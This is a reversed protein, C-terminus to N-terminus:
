LEDEAYQVILDAYDQDISINIVGNEHKFELVNMPISVGRDRITKYNVQLYASRIYHGSQDFLIDQMTGIQIGKSTIVPRGVLSKLSITSDDGAATEIESLLEPYIEVIQDSPFEIKYGNSAHKIDVTGYKLFVPQTLRLRDFSVLLSDVKGETDFLVDDVEGIVKNRSDILNRSLIDEALAHRPNQLPKIRNLDNLTDKFSITQTADLAFGASAYSFCCVLVFLFRMFM